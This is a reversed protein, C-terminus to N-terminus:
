DGFREPIAGLQQLLGLDDFSGWREVVKGDAIRLIDIGSQVAQKGTAPTGAFTGKHTGRATVRCAVMDGEAITAEVTMHWDPFASRFMSFAQKVGDLGTAQGPVPNHDTMNPAVIKDLQGMNGSRVAENIAEYLRRAVNKIEETAM